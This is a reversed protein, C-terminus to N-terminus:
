RSVALGGATPTGTTFEWEYAFRLTRYRGRLQAPFPDFPSAMKLIELAAHDLDPYGSSRRIAAGTLRGSADITVELVPNATLGAHLAATPYHLTGVREVRRRWSDLYPALESARTDPTIWPDNRRPGRLQVPGTDADAPNPAEAIRQQAASDGGEGNDDGTYRVQSAFGATTLVREGGAAGAQAPDTGTGQDAGPQPPPAGPAAQNHPTVPASSNGNGLQTRQALYAAADNRDATPLEDSVLLVDIGPAAAKPGIGGSFTLGLIIMGHLIAAVFVTMLLRDRVQVAGERPVLAKLAM